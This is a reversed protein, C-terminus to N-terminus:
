ERRITLRGLTVEVAVRDGPAFGAKRLWDGSLRLSSTIKLDPELRVYRPAVKLRRTNM